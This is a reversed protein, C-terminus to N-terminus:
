EARTTSLSASYSAIRRSIVHLSIASLDMTAGFAKRCMPTGNTPGVLAPLHEVCIATIFTGNTVTRTVGCYCYLFHM